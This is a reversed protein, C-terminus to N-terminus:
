GRRSFHVLTLPRKERKVAEHMLDHHFQCYEDRDGTASGCYFMAGERTGLPYHCMGPEISLMTCPQMDPPEIPKPEPIHGSSSHSKVKRPKHARPRPSASRARGKVLELRHAKGIVANRTLGLQGGIQSASYGAGWMSRLTIVYQEIWPSAM